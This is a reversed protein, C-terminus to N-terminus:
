RLVTSLQQLLKRVELSEESSRIKPQAYPMKMMSGCCCRPNGGEALIGTETVMLEARCADNLCRWVQGQKFRM